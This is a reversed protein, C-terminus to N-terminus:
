VEAVDVGKTHEHVVVVVSTEQVSVATVLSTKLLSLDEGQCTTTDREGVVTSLLVVSTAIVGVVALGEPLVHVGGTVEILHNGLGVSLTNCGLDPVLRLDLAVNIVAEECVRTSLEENGEGVVSAGLLALDGVM